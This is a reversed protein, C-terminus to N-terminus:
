KMLWRVMKFAFKGYPPYKMALDFWTATKMIGKKHSFTDFGTKGHYSGFGSNGVGGFPLEPNSLHVLANNVAGGGFAVREIFSKEFKSSSTFVYLSLPNPNEAIVTKAEEISEFSLIPLVPGFIENQMLKDDMKADTILTPEIRLKQHDAKGGFIIKGESLYELQSEFHKKNILSALHKSDLPEDGYFDTIVNKLNEVFKDYVEYHVLLYDPAVCTQGANVWKGFAIRKAAVKLNATKDIIAPSKGGLELTVPSLHPAAMEAIKKGVGTSGTFFIHDFRHNNILEPVVEHGEGEVVALLGSDFNEGIMKSILAATKPTQEPPKIIATNGAALAAVVPALALQFPYNWPGIILTVGKPYPLIYSKSPWSTLPSSVREKEMWGSLNELTFNIEELLFGVETAYGEFEPKSFDQKLADLIQPEYDVVVDKLKKLQDKRFKYSLTSGSEFFLKQSQYIAAIRGPLEPSQNTM